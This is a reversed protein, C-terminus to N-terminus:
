RICVAKLKGTVTYLLLCHYNERPGHSFKEVALDYSMLRGHLYIPIDHKYCTSLRKRWTNSHFGGEKVRWGNKQAIRRPDVMYESPRKIIRPM